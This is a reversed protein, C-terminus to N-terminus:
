NKFYNKKEIFPYNFYLFGQSHDELIAIDWNQVLM